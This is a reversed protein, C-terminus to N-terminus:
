HALDGPLAPHGAASARHAAAAAATVTWQARMRACALRTGVVGLDAVPSPGAVRLQSSDGRRSAITFPLPWESVSVLGYSATVLPAACVSSQGRARACKHDLLCTSRRAGVRMAGENLPLVASEPDAYRPEFGQPAALGKLLKCVICTM